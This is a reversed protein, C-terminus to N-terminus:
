LMGRLIELADGNSIKLQRAALNIVDMPRMNCAYCGCLGQETDLWMSPSNDQHFPCRTIYWRGAQDTPVADPLFELLSVRRKIDEILTPQKNHPVDLVDMPTVGGEYQAFVTEPRIQGSNGASGVGSPRPIFYDPLVDSLQEVELIEAFERFEYVKGSPHVSPPILVYGREAKIDIWNDAHSNKCPQRTKFYVHVGRCTNVMFTKTPFAAYWYDFIERNDFDVVVLGNGIVLAINLKKGSWFWRYIEAESPLRTQYPAWSRNPLLDAAPVKAGYNIPIVSFGQLQWFQAIQYNNM